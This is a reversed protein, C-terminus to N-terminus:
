VVKNQVSTLKMREKNEGSQGCTINEKLIRDAGTEVAKLCGLAGVILVKVLQHLSLGEM